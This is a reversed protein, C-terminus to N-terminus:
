FQDRINVTAAIVAKRYDTKAINTEFIFRISPRAGDRGFIIQPWSLAHGEM